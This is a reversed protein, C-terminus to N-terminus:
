MRSATFALPLSSQNRDLYGKADLSFHPAGGFSLRAQVQAVPCIPTWRHAQAAPEGGVVSPGTVVIEGTLRRRDGPVALDLRARLSLREGRRELRLESGGLAISFGDASTRASWQSPLVQELLWLAPRGARYLALNVSPARERFFPLASAWILVLGDGSADRADVYWWDFASSPSPLVAEWSRDITLLPAPSISALPPSISALSPGMSALSPQGAALAKM